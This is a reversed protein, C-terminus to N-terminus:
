LFRGENERHLRFRPDELHKTYRQIASKNSTWTGVKYSIYITLMMLITHTIADMNIRRHLKFVSNIILRRRTQKPSSACHKHYADFMVGRNRKPTVRRDDVSNFCDADDFFFTDGDSDNLYYVLSMYGEGDTDTHPPNFTPANLFPMTMNVKIRLFEEIGEFNRKSRELGRWAINM